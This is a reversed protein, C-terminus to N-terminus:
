QHPTTPLSSQLRSAQHKHLLPQCQQHRHGWHYPILNIHSLLINIWLKMFQVDVKESLGVYALMLFMWLHLLPFVFSHRPIALWMWPYLLVYVWHKHLPTFSDNNEIVNAKSPRLQNQFMSIMPTNNRHKSIKESLRSPNWFCHM